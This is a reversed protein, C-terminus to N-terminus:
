EILHLKGLLYPVALINFIGFFFPSLLALLMVVKTQMAVLTKKKIL